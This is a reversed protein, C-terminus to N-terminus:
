LATGGGVNRLQSYDRIYILGKRQHLMSDNGPVRREHMLPVSNAIPPSVM